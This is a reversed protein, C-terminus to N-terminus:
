SRSRALLVTVIDSITVNGVNALWSRFAASLSCIEFCYSIQGWQQTLKLSEHCFPNEFM